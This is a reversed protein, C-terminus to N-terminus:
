QNTQRHPWWCVGSFPRPKRCGCNHQGRGKWNDKECSLRTLFSFRNYKSDIVFQQWNATWRPVEAWGALWSPGALLLPVEFVKQPVCSCGFDHGPPRTRSQTPWASATTIASSSRWGTWWTVLPLSYVTWLTCIAPQGILAQGYYNLTTSVRGQM